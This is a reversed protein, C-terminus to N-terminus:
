GVAKMSYRYPSRDSGSGGREVIARGLLNALCARAAEESIAQALCIDELTEAGMSIALLVAPEVNEDDLLRYGQEDWVIKFSEPTSSYRSLTDIRRRPTPDFPTLRALELLIDVNAVLANSGRVSAGYAGGSKRNHHTVLWSWNSNRALVLLPLLAKNIQAADDEDNVGWHRSLTDIVVLGQKFERTATYVDSLVDSWTNHQPDLTRWLIRPDTLGMEACRERILDEPEESVILIAEPRM